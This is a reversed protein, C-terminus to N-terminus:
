CRIGTARVAAQQEATLNEERVVIVARDAEIGIRMSGDAREVVTLVIPGDNGFLFLREGTKRRLVLMLWGGHRFNAWAARHTESLNEWPPLPIQTHPVFVADIYQKYARYARAPADDTTM